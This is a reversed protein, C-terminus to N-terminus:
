ACACARMAGCRMADCRAPPGTGCSVVAGVGLTVRPMRRQLAGSAGCVRRALLPCPLRPGKARSPVLPCPPIRCPVARPVAAHLVVPPQMGCVRPAVPGTGEEFLVDGHEVAKHVMAACLEYREHARGWLTTRTAHPPRCAVAGVRLVRCAVRLTCCAVDSCVVNRNVGHQMRCQPM